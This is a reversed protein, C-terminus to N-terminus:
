NRRSEITPDLRLDLREGAFEYFKRITKALRRQYAHSSATAVFADIDEAKTRSLLFRLYRSADGVYYDDSRIGQDYLYELYATLFHVKIQKGM